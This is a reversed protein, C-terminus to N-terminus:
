GWIGRDELIGEKQAGPWEGKPDFDSGAPVGVEPPRLVPHVRMESGAGHPARRGGGEGARGGM